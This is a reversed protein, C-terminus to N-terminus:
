SERDHQHGRRLYSHEVLASLKAIDVRVDGVTSVILAVKVDQERLRQEFEERPVCEQKPDGKWFLEKLLTALQLLAVLALVVAGIM